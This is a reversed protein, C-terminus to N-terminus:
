KVFIMKKVDTFDGAEIRYFYTGSAINNGDFQVEYQGARTFENVLVDVERGLIDYIAIKVNVDKP